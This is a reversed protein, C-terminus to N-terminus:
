KIKLNTSCFISIKVLFIFINAKRRTELLGWSSVNLRINWRWWFNLRRYIFLNKVLPFQYLCVITLWFFKQMRVFFFLFVFKIAIWWYSKTENEKKKAKNLFWSFNWRWITHVIMSLLKFCVYLHTMWKMAFFIFSIEIGGKMSLHHRMSTFM